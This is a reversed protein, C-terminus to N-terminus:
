PVKPPYADKLAASIVAQGDAKLQEPHQNLWQRIAEVQQGLTVHPPLNLSSPPAGVDYGRLYGEFFFGEMKETVTAKQNQTMDCLRLVSNGDKMLVDSTDFSRIRAADRGCGCCFIGVAIVILKKM